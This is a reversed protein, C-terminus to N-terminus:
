WQVFSLLQYQEERQKIILVLLGENLISIPFCVSVVAVGDLAKLSPLHFVVYIRYNEQKEVVPNGYLDLIILNTLNQFSFNAKVDMCWFVNKVFVNRRGIEAIQNVNIRM